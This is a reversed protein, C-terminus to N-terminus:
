PCAPFFTFIRPVSFSLNLGEGKRRFMVKRKGREKFLYFFCEKNMRRLIFVGKLVISLKVFNVGTLVINRKVFKPESVSHM